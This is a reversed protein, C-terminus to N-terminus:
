SLQVDAPLGTLSGAWCWALCLCLCVFMCWDQRAPKWNDIAHRKKEESEFKVKGERVSKMWNEKREDDTDWSTRDEFSDELFGILYNRHEGDFVVIQGMFVVCEFGFSVAMFAFVLDNVSSGIAINMGFYVMCILCSSSGIVFKLSQDLGLEKNYEKVKESDSLDPIAIRKSIACAGLVKNIAGKIQNLMSSVFISLVCNMASIAIFPTWEELNTFVFKLGFAFLIEVLIGIMRKLRYGSFM